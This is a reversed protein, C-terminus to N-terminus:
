RPGPLALATRPKLVSAQALAERLLRLKRMAAADRPMDDAAGGLARWRGLEGMVALM